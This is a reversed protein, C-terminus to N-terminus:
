ERRVLIKASSATITTIAATTMVVITPTRRLGSISSFNVCQSVFRAAANKNFFRESRGMVNMMTPVVDSVDSVPRATSTARLLGIVSFAYECVGMAIEGGATTGHRAATM